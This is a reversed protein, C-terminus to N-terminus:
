EQVVRGPKKYWLCRKPLDVTIVQPPTTPATSAKSPHQQTNDQKTDTWIIQCVLVVVVSNQNSLFYLDTTNYRITCVIRGDYRQVYSGDFVGSSFSTDLHGHKPGPAHQDRHSWRFQSMSDQYRSHSDLTRGLARNGAVCVFGDSFSRKASCRTLTVCVVRNTM